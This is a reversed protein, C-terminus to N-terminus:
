RSRPPGPTSRAPRSARTSCTPCWSPFSTTSTPRRAAVVEGARHSARRDDGITSASSTRATPTSALARARHRHSPADDRPARGFRRGGRGRDRRRDAHRARGADDVGVVPVGVLLALTAPAPCRCRATIWRASGAVSRSRRASSGNSGRARRAARVRRLHRGPHRRRRARAPRGREARRRPGRGRRRGPPRARRAVSRPRTRPWGRGPWSRRADRDATRGRGAATRVDVHTSALGAACRGRRSSGRRRPARARPRRRRAGSRPAGADLLAALLMDGALGGVPDVYAVRTVVRSGRRPARDERRGIRRGPRRRDRGGGPRGRVLVLMANLATQGGHASGYGVSTPVGIVPCAALGGIVSALAGDMGAVVVVVDARDLDPIVPALRHLGAVGVDEHVTVHTGLLEARIRRRTCWPVTRRAPRCSSCTAESARDARTRGVGRARARGRGGRPARRARRRADTRRGADRAREVRRGRRARARDARGSRADQGVRPDGRPCGAPARSPHRRSRVRSRPVSPEALREAADQPEVDRPRGRGRPARGASAPLDHPSDVGCARRGRSSPFTSPRARGLM